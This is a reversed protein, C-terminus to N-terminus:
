INKRTRRRRKKGGKKTKSGSKQFLMGDDEFAKLYKEKFVPKESASLSSYISLYKELSLKPLDNISNVGNNTLLQKLSDANSGKYNNFFDNLPALKSDTRRTPTNSFSRSM